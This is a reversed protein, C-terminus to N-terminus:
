VTWRSNWAGGWRGSPRWSRKQDTPMEGGGKVIETKLKTVQRAELPNTAETMYVGGKNRKTRGIRENERQNWHAIDDTKREKM